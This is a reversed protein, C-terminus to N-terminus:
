NPRRYELRSRLKGAYSVGILRMSVGGGAGTQKKTQLCVQCASAACQRLPVVAPLLHSRTPVSHASHTMKM